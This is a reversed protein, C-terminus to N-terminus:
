DSETGSVGISIDLISRVSKGRAEHLSHMNILVIFRLTKCRKAVESLMVSTAVDVESGRTDEFGPTDVFVLRSSALSTGIAAAGGSTNSPDYCNLHATRSAKAHGIDFGPLADEATNYVVNTAKDGDQSLCSAVIPLPCDISLLAKLAPRLVEQSCFFLWTDHYATSSTSVLV